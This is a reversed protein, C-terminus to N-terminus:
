RILREKETSLPQTSIIRALKRPGGNQFTRYSAGSARRWVSRRPRWRRRKREAARSACFARIYVDESARASKGNVSCISPCRNEGSTYASTRGIATRRRSKATRAPKRCKAPIRAFCSRAPGSWAWSPRSGRRAMSPIRRTTSGWRARSGGATQGYVGRTYTRTYALAWPVASCTNRAVATGHKSDARGRPTQTRFSAGNRSASRTRPFKERAPVPIRAVRVFFVSFM